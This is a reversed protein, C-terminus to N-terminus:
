DAPIPPGLEALPVRVVTYRARQSRVALFAETCTFGLVREWSWGENGALRFAVGDALRVIEADRGDALPRGAYGCGVAFQLLATGVGRSLDERLRRPALRAPDTTFPATMIEGKVYPGEEGAPKGQGQTWVLDRGDSGVNAAGRGLDFSVLPHTGRAADYAWISASRNDAVQFVADNGFLRARGDFPTQTPSMASEYILAAGAADLATIRGYDNRLLRSAGVSWASTGPSEDRHALVPQNSGVTGLLLGDVHRGRATGDGHLSLAFRGSALDRNLAWCRPPRSAWEARMAFEIPGDVNGVIWDAFSGENADLALRELLLSARGEGEASFYVDAAMAAPARTWPTTMERCAVGGPAATCPQWEIAPPMQASGEPLWFDCGSWCTWPRWGSPVSRPRVGPERECAREGASAVTAPSSRAGHEKAVLAATSAVPPEAQSCSLLVLASFLPRQRRSLDRHVKV